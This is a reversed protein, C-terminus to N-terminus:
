ASCPVRANRLLSGCTQGPPLRDPQARRCRSSGHCAERSPPHPTGSTGPLQGDEGEGIRQLIVARFVQTVPDRPNQDSLEASDRRQREHRCSRYEREFPALDIRSGDAPLEVDVGNQATGDRALEAAHLDARLEHVDIAAHAEPSLLVVSQGRIYQRHLVLDGARDDAIAQLEAFGLAPQKRWTRCGIRVGEFRVQFAEM